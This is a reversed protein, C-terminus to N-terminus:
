ETIQVGASNVSSVTLDHRAGVEDSGVIPSKQIKM